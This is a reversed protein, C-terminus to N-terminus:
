ESLQVPAAKANKIERLLEWSAAHKYEHYLTDLEEIKTQICSELAKRYAEDLAGKATELHKQSASTSHANNNMSADKLGTRTEVVKDSAAINYMQKSKKSPTELAVEEYAALLTDYITSISPERLEDCLSGFRNYVAGTFLESLTSDSTVKKWDIRKM